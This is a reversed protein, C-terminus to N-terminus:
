LSDQSKRDSNKGLEQGEIATLLECGTEQFWIAPRLSTIDDQFAMEEELYM